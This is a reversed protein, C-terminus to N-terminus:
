ASRALRSGNKRIPAARRRALLLTRELAASRQRGAALEAKAHALETELSQIRLTDMAPLSPLAPEVMRPPPLMVAAPRASAAALKAELDSIQAHLSDFKQQLAVDLTRQGHQNSKESQVLQHSLDVRLADFQRQLKARWSMADHHIGTLEIQQLQSQKLLPAAEKRMRRNARALLLIRILAIFLLLGTISLAILLIQPDHPLSFPM